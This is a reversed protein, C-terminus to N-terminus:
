KDSKGQIQCDSVNVRHEAGRSSFKGTKGLKKETVWVRLMILYRLIVFIVVATVLIGIIYAAVIGSPNEQLDLFDYVYFEQTAHTLYALGLYLAPLIITPVMDLWPLPSTLSNLAHRSTNSWLSFACPFRGPALLAWYVITVIWPYIVVTSYFMSHAIQLPKRWRALFPVGTLWYSSTHIAAFAHYFALGWYTLHTFYSFSRQSQDHWQQRELWLHHVPHRLRVALTRSARLLTAGASTNLVDCIAM